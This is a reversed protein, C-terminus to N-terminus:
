LHSEFSGREHTLFAQIEDRSAMSPQAGVRTTSVAGAINAFAVASSPTQGEALAVALAGNFADGAATTDVAQVRLAPVLERREHTALFAGREGLTIIITASGTTLLAVTQAEWSNPESASSIGTLLEAETENPTLIAVQSLLTRPLQQAPAPNLILPIQWQAAVEAAYAVTAIPVELQTLIVDAERIIERARDVDEKCCALNAGPVIIISNRGQQDVHICCAATPANPDRRVFDIKVNSQKLSDLLRDGPSDAGVRGVLYVEAGLRGAQVAQNAGKGGPFMGFLDGLVTEGARPLRDARAVYDLVLSGIVVIRPRSSSVESTSASM